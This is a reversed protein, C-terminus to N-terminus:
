LAHERLFTDVAAHVDDPREVQVLHSHGAFVVLKSNPITRQMREAIAVPTLEDRDGAIVLTPVAISPLVDSADHELYAAITAAILDPSLAAVHAFLGELVDPPCSTRHAGGSLYALERALRLGPRSRLLRLLAGSVGPLHALQRVLAVTRRRVAASKSIRDLPHGPTGCILVLARVCDPHRRWIELAVQVGFSLGVVVTPPVAAAQWVAYADDAFQGVSIALDRPAPQGGHGRYEWSLVPRESAFHPTFFRWHHVSSVLGHATLIPTKGAAGHVRFALPEGDSSHAIEPSTSNM